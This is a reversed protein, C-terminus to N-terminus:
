PSFVDELAVAPTRLLSKCMHKSQCSHALLCLRSVLIQNSVLILFPSQKLGTAIVPHPRKKKVCTYFINSSSRINQTHAGKVSVVLRVNKAQLHSREQPGRRRQSRNLGNKLCCAFNGVNRQQRLFNLPLESWM